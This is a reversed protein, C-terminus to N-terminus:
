GSVKDMRRLLERQVFERIIIRTSLFPAQEVSITTTPYVNQITRIVVSGGLLLIKFTQNKPYEKRSDTIELIQGLIDFDSLIKEGKIDKSPLAVMEGPIVTRPILERDIQEFKLIYDALVEAIGFIYKQIDRTYRLILDDFLSQDKVSGTLYQMAQDVLEKRPVDPNSLRFDVYWITWAFCTGRERWGLATQSPQFSIRPCFDLPSIYKIPSDKGIITMNEFLNKINLYLATTDFDKIHGYPEFLEIENLKKDYILFNSHSGICPKDCSYACSIYLYVFTFRSKGRACQRFRKVFNPIIHLGRKKGLCTWILGLMQSTNSDITVCERPHRDILWLLMLSVNAARNDLIYTSIQNRNHIVNQLMKLRPITEKGTEEESFPSVYKKRAIFQFHPPEIAKLLENVVVDPIMGLRKTIKGSDSMRLIEVLMKLDISLDIFHSIYIERGISRLFTLLSQYRKHISVPMELKIKPPKLHDAGWYIVSDSESIAITFIGGVSVNKIKSGINVEVPESIEGKSLGIMNLTYGPISVRTDVIKDEENSGWMYLKGEKTIAAVTSYYSSISSIKELIPIKHPKSKELAKELDPYVSKPLIRGSRTRRDPENGPSMSNLIYVINPGDDGYSNMKFLEGDTTLVNLKNMYIYIQRATKKFPVLTPNLTPNGNIDNIGIRIERKVHSPIYKSHDPLIPVGSTYIKGDNTLIFLMDEILNFDIIGSYIKIINSLLVIKKNIFISINLYASEDHFIVGYGYEFSVNLSIKIAHYNKLHEVLMPKTIFKGGLNGWLYTKGDETVAGTFDLSCAISVVKSSFHIHIPIRSFSTTGDGLQGHTNEGVMSLNGNEDIIGYHAYGSSIPSNILRILSPSDM